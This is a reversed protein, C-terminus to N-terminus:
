LCSPVFARLISGGLDGLVGFLFLSESFRTSATASTVLDEAPPIVFVAVAPPWAFLAAVGVHFALSCAFAGVDRWTVSRPPLVTMLTQALPSGAGCTAFAATATSAATTTSSRCGVPARIAPRAPTAVDAGAHHRLAVMRVAHTGCDDHLDGGGRGSPPTARHTGPAM